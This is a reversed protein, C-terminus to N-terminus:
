FIYLSSVDKFKSYLLYILFHSILIQLKVYLFDEFCMHDSIIAMAKSGILVTSRLIKHKLTTFILQVLTHAIVFALGPMVNDLKCSKLLLAETKKSFLFLERQNSFLEPPDCDYWDYLQLSLSYQHIYEGGAGSTTASYPSLQTCSYATLVQNCFHSLTTPRKLSSAACRETTDGERRM